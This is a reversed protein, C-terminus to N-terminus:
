RRANGDQAASSKMEQSYLSKAVYAYSDANLLWDEVENEVDLENKRTMPYATKGNIFEGGVWRQQLGSKVKQLFAADSQTRMATRQTHTLDQRADLKRDERKKAAAVTDWKYCVDKTQAWKHTAEHVIVRAVTIPKAERQEQLWDYSMHIPGAEFGPRAMLWHGTIPDFRDMFYFKLREHRDDATHAVFAAANAPTVGERLSSGAKDFLQIRYANTLGALTKAFLKRIKEIRIWQAHGPEVLHVYPDIHFYKYLALITREDCVDAIQPGRNPGSMSYRALLRDIRQLATKVMEPAIPIAQLLLSKSKAYNTNYTVKDSGSLNQPNQEGFHRISTASLRADERDGFGVTVKGVTFLDSM